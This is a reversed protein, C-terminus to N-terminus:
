RAISWVGGEKGDKPREPWLFRFTAGRKGDSEVWVQGGQREVIRKVVALGIGTSEVEDKPKLTQFITFIREHYEPAIGPGNDSVSFEYWGGGEDTVSVTVRPSESEAHRIANGILNLFVQQLPARESVVTPMYGEVEIALNDPPALLDVVEDVLKGVDLTEPEDRSRGARSYQLIGDILGEMRLVRRQLLELYGGTEENLNEGLDEGLWQALNAIGRLPAKLDHSAV